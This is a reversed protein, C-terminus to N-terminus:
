KLEVLKVALLRDLAVMVMAVIKQSSQLKNFLEIMKPDSNVVSDWDFSM